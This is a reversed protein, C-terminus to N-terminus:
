KLYRRTEVLVERGEILEYKKIWRGEKDYTYRWQMYEGQGDVWSTSGLTTPSERRKESTVDGQANYTYACTTVIGTSRDSSTWNTVNRGQYSAVIDAIYKGRGYLTKSYSLPQNHENFSKYATKYLTDTNTYCLETLTRSSDASFQYRRYISHEKGPNNCDFVVTQVAERGNRTFTYTSTALHKQKQYRKEVQTRGKADLLYEGRYGRTTSEVILKKVGPFVDREVNINQCVAATPLLLLAIITGSKM